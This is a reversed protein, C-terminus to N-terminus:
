RVWQGVVTGWFRSEGPVHWLSACRVREHWCAKWAPCPSAQDCGLVPTWPFIGIAGPVWQVALKLACYAKPMCSAELMNALLTRGLGQLGEQMIRELDAMDMQTVDVGQSKLDAQLIEAARELAETSFPM